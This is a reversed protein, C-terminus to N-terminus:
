YVEEQYIYFGLLITLQCMNGYKEGRTLKTYIIPYLLVHVIM